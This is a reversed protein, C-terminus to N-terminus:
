NFRPLADRHDDEVREEKIIEDMDEVADDFFREEDDVEIGIGELTNKAQWKHVMSWKFDFSQGYLTYPKPAVELLFGEIHSVFKKLDERYLKYNEMEEDEREAEWRDGSM